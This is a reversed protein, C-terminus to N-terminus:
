KTIMDCKKQWLGPDTGVDVGSDLITKAVATTSDTGPAATAHKGVVAVAEAVSLTEDRGVTAAQSADSGPQPRALAMHVGEADDPQENRARKPQQTTARVFSWMAHGKVTPDVGRRGIRKKTRRWEAIDAESPLEGETGGYERLLGVSLNQAPEWSDHEADDWPSAWRVKYLITGDQKQQAELISQAEYEAQLQRKRKLAEEKEARRKAANRRATREGGM